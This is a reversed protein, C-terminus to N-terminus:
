VGAIGALRSAVCAIGTSKEIVQMEREKERKLGEL